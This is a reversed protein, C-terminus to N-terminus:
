IYVTKRKLKFYNSLKMEAIGVHSPVLLILCELSELMKTITFRAM